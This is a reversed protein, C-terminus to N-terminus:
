IKPKNWKIDAIINDGATPRFKGYIKMLQILSNFFFVLRIHM